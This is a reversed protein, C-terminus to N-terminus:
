LDLILTEGVLKQFGYHKKIVNAFKPECVAQVELLKKKSAEKVAEQILLTLAEGRIKTPLSHDLVLIAEAILKLIGYAVVKGDHEIVADAFINNKKPLDFGAHSYKNCLERLEPVDSGRIGRILM